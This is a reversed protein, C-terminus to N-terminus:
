DALFHCDDTLEKWKFQITIITDQLLQMEYVSSAQVPHFSSAENMNLPIIMHIKKEKRNTLM